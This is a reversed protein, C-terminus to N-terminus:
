AWAEGLFPDDAAAAQAAAPTLRIEDADTLGLPAHTAAVVLGGRAVHSRVVEAFAAVSATDLSVTPEDLLWLARDAVLLRALGLRRKQGASCYAAPLDAIRALGFAELAAAVGGGGYLDAWFGLNEAVSLQPKVADLHGAYLIRGRYADPDEALAVGDLRVAGAEPPILGALVRLLSSKGAGNPGTLLAARGQAVRFSVDAFIRRDARRCSLTDVALDM